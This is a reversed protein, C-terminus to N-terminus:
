GGTGTQGNRAGKVWEAFEDVVSWSGREESWRFDEIPYTGSWPYDPGAVAKLHLLEGRIDTVEYTTTHQWIYQGGVYLSIM